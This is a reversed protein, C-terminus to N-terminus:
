NINKIIEEIKKTPNRIYTSAWKDNKIAELCVKESPNKILGILRGNTKVVELCVEETPNKILGIIDPNTKIIEMQFDEPINKMYRIAFPQERVIAIQEERTLKYIETIYLGNLPITAEEVEEKSIKKVRNSNVCAYKGGPSPAFILPQLIFTFHPGGSYPAKAKYSFDAISFPQTYFKTKEDNIKVFDDFEVDFEIERKNIKELSKYTVNLFTSNNKECTICFWPINDKIEVDNLIYQSVPHGYQDTTNIVIREKKSKGWKSIIHNKDCLDFEVCKNKLKFYISNILLDNSNEEFSLYWNEQQNFKIKNKM